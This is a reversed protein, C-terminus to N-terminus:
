ATRTGTGAGPLALLVLPATTPAASGGEPEVTVGVGTAAGVPGALLAPAGPRAPDMLGAPRMGGPGAFWLQYVRGAPPAAMGSPVFVARDRERSLVVTGTGGDPIRGSALRADPASLVGALAAERAEAARAQQRATDARQYQWAAVGGLGAAVALCAALAWRSWARRRPARHRAVGTEPGPGAGRAAGPEAEPGPGQAAGTEPRPGAGRGARPQAEPDPRQAEPGPGQAAGTEPGPGAGRGASPEAEPGAGRAAGSEADPGPGRAAGTEPGPGAGRGARPQAEPGAGWAAWPEPEPGAGATGPEPEPDSPLERIRRLVAGRLAPPPEVAAATGLLAATAAFERVELACDPCTELHAEFAAREPETLADLVYAATAEHPNETGM